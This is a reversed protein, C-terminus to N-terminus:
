AEPRRHVWGGHIALNAENADFDEPDFSGGIWERMEGHEPHKPNRIVELFNEYGGIGGVDEPPCARRGAEIIPYRGDDLPPLIAELIIEHEWGDGFDYEYSLKNKPRRLVQDVTTKNESVRTLGFERDSTGYLIGNAEFQHLHSDTWGMVAQISDHLRKLSISGPVLFRRWIPPKSGRLTVKLRFYSETPKRIRM